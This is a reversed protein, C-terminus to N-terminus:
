WSSVPLSLQPTQSQCQVCNGSVKKNYHVSYLNSLVFVMLALKPQIKCNSSNSSASQSGPPSPGHPGWTSALAGPTALDECSAGRCGWRSYVFSRPVTGCRQCTLSINKRPSHFRRPPDYIRHLLNYVLLNKPSNM